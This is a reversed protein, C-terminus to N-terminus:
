LDLQTEPSQATAAHHSVMSVTFNEHLSVRTQAIIRPRSPRLTVCQEVRRRQISASESTMTLMACRRFSFHWVLAGDVTADGFSAKTSLCLLFPELSQLRRWLADLAPESFARCTRSLVALARRGAKRTAKARFDTPNRVTDEALCDVICGLVESILLANHMAKPPTAPHRPSVQKDLPHSTTLRPLLTATLWIDHRTSAIAVLASIQM